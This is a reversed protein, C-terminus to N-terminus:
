TTVRELAQGRTPTPPPILSDSRRRFISIVLLTVLSLCSIMAIPKLNMEKSQSNFSSFFSNLKSFINFIFEKIRKAQDQEIINLFSANLLGTCLSTQLFGAYQNIQDFYIPKSM